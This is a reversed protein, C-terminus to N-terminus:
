IIGQWIVRLKRGYEVYRADHTSIRVMIEECSLCISNGLIELGQESLLKDCIICRSEM